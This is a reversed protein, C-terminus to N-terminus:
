SYSRRSPADLVRSKTRKAERRPHVNVIKVITVLGRDFEVAAEGVRVRAAGTQGRLPAYTGVTRVRLDDHKYVLVGCLPELKARPDIILVEGNWGPVAFCGRPIKLKDSM